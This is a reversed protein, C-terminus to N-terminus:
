LVMRLGIPLSARKPAMAIMQHSADIAYLFHRALILFYFAVSSHLKSKIGPSITVTTVALFQERKSQGLFSVNTNGVTVVTVSWESHCMMM